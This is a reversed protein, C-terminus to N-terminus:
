GICIVENDSNVAYCFGNPDIAPRSCSGTDATKWITNLKYDMAELFYVGDKDSISAYIAGSADTTLGGGIPSDLGRKAKENGSADLVFIKKRYAVVLYGNPMLAMDVVLMPKNILQLANGYEGLDPMEIDFLEGLEGLDLLGGDGSKAKPWQWILSGDSTKCCYVTGRSDSIYVKGTPGLVTKSYIPINDDIVAIQRKFVQAGSQNIKYLFGENNGYIDGNDDTVLARPNPGAPDTYSWEWDGDVLSYARVAKGDGAIFRLSHIIALDLVPDPTDREWLLTGLTTSYCSIGTSGTVGAEGGGPVLLKGGPAIIVQGNSSVGHLSWLETGDAIGVGMFSEQTLVEIITKSAGAVIVGNAYDILPESIVRQFSPIFYPLQGALLDDLSLTGEDLLEMPDLKIKEGKVTLATRWQVSPDMPGSYKTLCNGAPNGGVLPWPGLDVPATAQWPFGTRWGTASIANQVDIIEPNAIVTSDHLSTDPVISVTYDHVAIDGPTAEVAFVYGSVSHASLDIQFQASANGTAAQKYLLNSSSTGIDYVSLFISGVTNELQIVSQDYATTVSFACWDQVDTGGVNGTLPYGDYVTRASMPDNDSDMLSGTPYVGFNVHYQHDVANSSYYTVRLLYTGYSLSTGPFSFQTTNASSSKEAVLTDGATSSLYLRVALGPEACTVTIDGAISTWSGIDITYWDFQDNPGVWDIVSQLPYVETATAAAENGDPTSQASTRDAGFVFVLAIITFATIVNTIRRSM